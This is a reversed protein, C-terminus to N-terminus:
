YKIMEDLLLRFEELSSASEDDTNASNEGSGQVMARSASVQKTYSRDEHSGRRLAGDDVDTIQDFGEPVQHGHVM